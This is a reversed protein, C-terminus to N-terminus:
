LHIELWKSTAAIPKCRSTCVSSCILALRISSSECVRMGHESISGLGANLSKQSCAITIILVIRICIKEMSQGSLILLEYWYLFEKPAYLLICYMRIWLTHTLAPGTSINFKYFKNRVNNKVLHMYQQKTSTKSREIKKKMLEQVTGSSVVQLWVTNWNKNTHM